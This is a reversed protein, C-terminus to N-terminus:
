RGYFDEDDVDDRSDDKEDDADNGDDSDYGGGRLSLTSEPYPDQTGCPELRPTTINSM